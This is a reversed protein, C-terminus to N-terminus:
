QLGESIRKEEIKLRGDFFFTGLPLWASAFALLFKKISWSYQEKAFYALGVYLVFLFGHAWGTYKVALPFGYAYKLPMAILLLVMFSIGEAIGVMRLLKITGTGM